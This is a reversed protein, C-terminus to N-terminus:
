LHPILWCAHRKDSVGWVRRILLFMDHRDGYIDAASSGYPGELFAKTVLPQGNVSQHTLSPPPCTLTPSHLHLFALRLQCLWM